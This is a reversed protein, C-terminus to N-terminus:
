SRTRVAIVGGTYYPGFQESAVAPTLYRIELIVRAPITRLMDAGGQRVGNLYVVPAVGQPNTLGPAARGRLFEPRFRLVAEHANNVQASEIESAPLVDSSSMTRPGRDMASQRRATGSPDVSRCGPVLLLVALIVSVRILPSPSVPAESSPTLYSTRPTASRSLQRDVRGRQEPGSIQFRRLESKADFDRAFPADPDTGGVSSRVAPM